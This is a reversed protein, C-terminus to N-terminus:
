GNKIVLNVSYLETTKQIALTHNEKYILYLRKEILHNGLGNNEQKLIRSSDFKNKCIFQITKAEIIIQVEIAHDMKKNTTHKFANEIFPIFVMPAILINSSNGLVEFSVYNANSTRIKQLDIYKEIYEIEKALLIEDTKTEYLMFRLIDSLKNLYNSAEDANKIILVDINNLTNFLFHPDLQAKILAMETEHNKKNLEERLKIEDYWTIFGKIVLAGVGSVSAIFSMITITIYATSRGNVGGKDMDIMRGTEIFFRILIYGFCAAAISILLGYIVAQLFKKHQLYKPFVLFYYCYFTIFSPLYAFLFLSKFANEMRAAQNLQNSSKFYVLLM